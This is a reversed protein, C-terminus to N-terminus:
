NRPRTVDALDAARSLAKDVATVSSPVDKRKHRQHRLLEVTRQMRHRDVVAKLRACEFANDAKTFCWITTRVNDVAMKLEAMTERFGPETRMQQYWTDSLLEQELAHLENVLQHIEDARM